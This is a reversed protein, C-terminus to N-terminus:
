LKYICLTMVTCISVCDFSSVHFLETTCYLPGETIRFIIPWGYSLM